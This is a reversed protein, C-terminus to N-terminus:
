YGFAAGFRKRNKALLVYENTRVRARLCPRTGTTGGGPGHPRRNPGVLGSSAAPMLGRAGLAATQSHLPSDM